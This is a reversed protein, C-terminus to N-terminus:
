GNLVIRSPIARREYIRVGPEPNSIHIEEDKPLDILDQATIVIKDGGRQKMVLAALTLLEGRLTKLYSTAKDLEAQADIVAVAAQMLADEKQVRFIHRGLVTMIQDRMPQTIKAM